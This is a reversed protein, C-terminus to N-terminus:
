YGLLFSRVMFGLAEKSFPSLSYEDGTRVALDALVDDPQEGLSAVLYAGQDPFFGPGWFEAIEARFGDNGVEFSFDGM